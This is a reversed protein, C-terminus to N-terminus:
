ACCRASILPARRAAGRRQLWVLFSLKAVSYNPLVALCPGLLGEAPVVLALCLWYALWRRHAEVQSPVELAKFTAYLPYATATLATALQVGRRGLRRAAIVALVLLGYQLARVGDPGLRSSADALQQRGCRLVARARTNARPVDCQSPV